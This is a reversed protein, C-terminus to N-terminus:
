SHHFPASVSDKDEFPEQAPLKAGLKLCPRPPLSQSPAALFANWSPLRTLALQMERSLTLKQQLSNNHPWSMSMGKQILRGGNQNHPLWHVRFSFMSVM